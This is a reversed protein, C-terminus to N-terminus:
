KQKTGNKLGKLVRRDEGSLHIIECGQQLRSAVRPDFSKTLQEVSKNTTIFTARCHELRQDLVLLFTRLSFDTEQSGVSVTTGVDELFLKEAEILPQVVELETKTSSPKYTDRLQLCLMEYTTRRVKRGNLLFDRMICAMAYSKGVGQAGWLLIGKHDPLDKIKKQLAASLHETRASWFLKPVIKEALIEGRRKTERGRLKPGCSPCVNVFEGDRKEFCEQDTEKGCEACKNRRLPRASKQINPLSEKLKTAEM